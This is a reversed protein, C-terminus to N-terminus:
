KSEEKERSFIGAIDQVIEAIYFETFYFKFLFTNWYSAYRGSTSRIGYYGLPTQGVAEGQICVRRSAAKGEWICFTGRSASGRDRGRFAFGRRSASGGHPCFSVRTFINGQGLSRKHATFIM